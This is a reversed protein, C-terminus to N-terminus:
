GANPLAESEEKVEDDVDMMFEPHSADMVFCDVPPTNFMSGKGLRKKVTDVIIRREMLYKVIEAFPTASKSCYARFHARPVYVRQINKEYRIVLEGRPERYPAPAIAKNIGMKTDDVSDIILANNAILRNM